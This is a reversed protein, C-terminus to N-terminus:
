ALVAFAKEKNRHQSREDQCEVVIGSPFHTIRIASDTKNIHQGGAGSSLFTDIRIDKPDIKPAESEPVEPFVMVTCASTHVRGQTETVPVRQVRHGGSEFKMIGYVGEGSVKCIMEKYGGMEGPSESMIEVSWGKKEAYKSYLRFLDGAFLAAEDGGTGARIELFANSDDKPDRPLLMIQINKETQAIKEANLPAEEEAMLRMEEDPSELMEQIARADQVATQYERFVKVMSELDAYEKSLTRFKEQDGVVEPQSLLGQVEEYREAITDLKAIITDKLM